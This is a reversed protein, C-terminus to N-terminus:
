SVGQTATLRGLDQPAKAAAAGAKQFEEFYEEALSRVVEGIKVYQYENLNALSARASPHLAGFGKGPLLVVGGEDALRFLMELPHKKALMWRAFEPGHLETAITELDLLTYYDAGNPDQTAPLGLERYLAARRSRLIRKVAKNYAGSEDMLAFLAFLAMQVQQPTSLGATHNQAVTRSDAVLREIFKLGRPDVVLSAYRADLAAKDAERLEGIRRDMVNDKRTAVVGLRWGTAGFYKSFSYVLITNRPCVSFLSVFDDVFTGYVDDTLIILDPRKTAVIDAIRKLGKADIRVSPPNSPNVVFFAKIAPDTLKDLESDAYQWGGAADASVLVEVMQYDNLQPIEIYPTFIPMGIAIKDGPALLKNERLTEFVYTIGATGGEVAFLDIDGEPSHGGIVERALYRRVIAEAGALMRPPTPYTDALVGGVLEILLTPASLGLQDRVYSMVAALFAVGPTGERAALFADFRGELGSARPHGGVGEPMYAFSREAEEMAFLGLQFFAHRPLTALFNPNGRGANLMLREAHSSALKTLNDKLEFPSLKSFKSYDVPKM